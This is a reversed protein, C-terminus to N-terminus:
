EARGPASVWLAADKVIVTSTVSVAEFVYAGAYKQLQENSLKFVEKGQLINLKQQTEETKSIAFAKQYYAIADATDKRAALLDGYSDYANSSAPYNRGDRTEM